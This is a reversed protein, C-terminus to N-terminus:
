KRFGIVIISNFTTSVSYIEFHDATLATLHAEVLKPTSHDQLYFEKVSWM